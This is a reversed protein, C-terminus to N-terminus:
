GGVRFRNVPLGRVDTEIAFLGGAFRESADADIAATTVYLTKLEPGGFVCTTINKVPMEIVRDITGDPAIRVICSGGHRCNWLYGDSDMVSGDPAGRPFDVFFPRENSIAGTNSDYDYVRVANALTDAFYFRKQDPSWTMTNSIGIQSKWETATGDPDVRYLVGDKGGAEGPSGDPNVNNRMSGVWFSGRPDVRGENLRVKPWGNLRFLYDKRTDSEPQWLIVGSGLAVALTDDRDTLALATAPQEFFWSKLTRQKPDYRHILFRNIDCFYLVQQSDHWVAGEGCKSGAPSVCEPTGIKAM